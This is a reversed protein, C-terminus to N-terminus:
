GFRQNCIPGLAAILQNQRAVRQAAPSLEFQFGTPGNQTICANDGGLHQLLRAQLDGSEGLYIWIQPNYLAYVGSANPANALISPRSFPFWGQGPGIPM